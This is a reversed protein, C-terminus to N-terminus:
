GRLLVRWNGALVKVEYNSIPSESKWSSDTL